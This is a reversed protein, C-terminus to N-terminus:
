LAGERAWDVADEAAELAARLAKREPKTLLQGVEVRPTLRVGAAADAIQQRLMADLIVKHAEVVKTRQAESIVDAEVIGALRDPTSRAPRHHKISLVRASGFIPMLGGQKCDVRDDAGMRFGGFSALPPRWGALTESLARWFSPANAARDYADRWLKEAMAVDGHVAAADFFIDVNLLDEPKHRRVWDDVTARWDGESRRWVANKAMVGGTCLPVGAADLTAAFREGLEACWADAADDAEEGAYVIANDQDAALLSEGRGGSGLVFVAYPKPPPGWNPDDRMEAEALEAARRTLMRIEASIVQAVDRAAVGDAVLREVILPMKSWARGLSAAD